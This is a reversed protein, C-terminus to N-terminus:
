FGLVRSFRADATRVKAHNDTISVRHLDTEGRYMIRLYYVGEALDGLFVKGTAADGGQVCPVPRVMGNIRVTITDMELTTYARLRYGACPYLNTTVITAAIGHPPSVPSLTVAFGTERGGLHQGAAIAPVLLFVILLWGSSHRNPIGNM